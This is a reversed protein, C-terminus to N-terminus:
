GIHVSILWYNRKRSKDNTKYNDVIKYNNKKKITHPTLNNILYYYYYYYYYYIFLLLLKEKYGKYSSYHAAYYSNIICTCYM